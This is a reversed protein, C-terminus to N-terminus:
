GTLQSILDFVRDMPEVISYGSNEYRTGVQRQFEMSFLNERFPVMRSAVGIAVEGQARKELVFGGSNGFYVPCDIVVHADNVIGAVIGTRLLPTSKEFFDLDALSTPYGLLFIDDGLQVDKLLKTDERFLGAVNWNEITPCTGALGPMELIDYKGSHPKGEAIKELTAIRAVAVDANSHKLLNGDAFLTTCDIQFYVRDKLAFDLATLRLEATHTELSNKFLVHKASVLFM